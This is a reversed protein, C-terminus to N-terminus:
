SLGEKSLPIPNSISVDTDAEIGIRMRAGSKQQPKITIAKDGAQISIIEGVKVDVIKM